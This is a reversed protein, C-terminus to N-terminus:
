TNYHFASSETKQASCLQHFLLLLPHLVSIPPYQCSRQCSFWMFIMLGWDNVNDDYPRTTYAVGRLHGSHLCFTLHITCDPSIICEQVDESLFIRDMDVWLAYVPLTRSNLLVCGDLPGRRHHRAGNGCILCKAVKSNTDFGPIKLLLSTGTQM